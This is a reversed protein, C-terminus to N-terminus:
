RLALRPTATTERAKLRTAIWELAREAAKAERYAPRDNEEALATILRAVASRAEALAEKTENM